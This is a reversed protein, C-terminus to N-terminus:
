GLIFSSLLTYFSGKTSIESKMVDISQVKWEGLVGAQIEQIMTGIRHTEHSNSAKVRGITLHPHFPKTEEYPSISLLQQDLQAKLKSLPHLGGDIGVWIISPNKFNPFCDLNKACLQFSSKNQCALQVALSVDKLRNEELNGLFKLTLHIQDSQTWRILNSSLRSQLIKQLDQLQAILSSPLNIAIFLRMKKQTESAAM